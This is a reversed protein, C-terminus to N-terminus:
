IFHVFKAQTVIHILFESIKGMTSRGRTWMEWWGEEGRVKKKELNKLLISQNWLWLHLVGNSFSVLLQSNCFSLLLYYIVWILVFCFGVIGRTHTYVFPIGLLSWCHFEGIRIKAKQLVERWKEARLLCNLSRQKRWSRRFWAAAWQTVRAQGRGGQSHVLDWNVSQGRPMQSKRPYLSSEKKPGRYSM